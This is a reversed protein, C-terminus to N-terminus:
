KLLVMKKTASFDGANLKYFYIGSANASADWEISVVGAEAEGAFQTVVQGTVNYVTLTYESAVPLNFSITTTPNFPNPYNQNLAFNAPIETTKVVAGEYSGLEISVVNGNANLFEGSFGNGEFSYVLVRTVNDEANYAYKIDMNDALLTPTIDGEVVVLAAGMLKDVSVVGQDVVYTAEVPALKPYAQADGVVIRIQYVLDGVSLVMGDANVDSAAVQGDFNIHFVGLGYIFYNSYLVADAIENAVGNLNIDGRADLSEACAIDLGGNYFNIFRIPHKLTDLMCPHEQMGFYTPFGHEYYHNTIERYIDDPPDPMPLGKDFIQSDVWLTDGTKSSLVNDGCDMWFFRVPIYMCEFTRDDTVLFDLYFLDFPVPLSFCAPHVPGNNTEAIGVVRLLGKPCANGCNGFPGFRYTFYEWNCTDVPPPLWHPVPCYLPGAKAQTFVLASADYAILFDFGGLKETGQTVTVALKQHTGQIVMPRNEIVVDFKDFSTQHFTLICCATDKTDTVCVTFDYFGTDSEGCFFTIVASDDIQELGWTADLALGGGPIPGTYVPPGALFFVLRDCDDTATAWSTETNGVGIEVTDPNCHIYLGDNYFHVYFVCTDVPAGCMGMHDDVEIAIEYTVCVDDIDPAMSWTVTNAPGQVINGPGSLLTFTAPEQEGPPDQDHATLVVEVVECHTKVLTGQPCDDFRWNLDCIHYVQFCHPGDWSPYMTGGVNLAWIWEGGPPYYASDICLTDGDASSLAQTCVHWVEQDFGAPIGPGMLKAGGFGVVDIGTGNADSYISVILDYMIPWGLAHTDLVAVTRPGGGVMWVAFGNTSGTLSVGTGNTLKFHWCVDVNTLVQSPDGPNLGDMHDLTIGGQGHVLGFSFVMLATLALFLSTRKM